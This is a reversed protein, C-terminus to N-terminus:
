TTSRLSSVIRNTSRTSEVPSTVPCSGSTTRATDGLEEVVHPVADVRVSAGHSLVGAVGDHRGEADRLGVLVVGLAGDPSRERDQLRHVLEAELRARAHLGTLDERVFVVGGEGGALRDVDGDAELRM